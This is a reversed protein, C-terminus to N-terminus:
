QENQTPQPQHKKFWDAVIQANKPEFDARKGAFADAMSPYHQFGHGTAPLEKFEAAGPKNANVLKAITEHDDRSMIWDYQGFLVLTPVKVQSWAAALNLKQLQQYFALPRGYLHSLDKGEPWLESLKPVENTLAGIPRGRVLWEYYLTSAQKMRDTVDGASNGALAFRRREIELMHEFWTKVWGGIIAYGRVKAQQAESEPVLPAFGGGNSTGFLYIQDPDIFDYNGLTRFAARYGALESEFDTEACVGESDGCGPKDVRVTCYGPLEALARIVSAISDGGENPAEVSDCSLWGVVFIVPLKGTANRPKTIITRLKQGKAGSVNDYIVDANSYTERAEEPLAGKLVMSEGERSIDITVEQGVKLTRAFEALDDRSIALHKNVYVLNDGVRIDLQAALSGPTVESILFTKPIKGPKKPDIDLGLSGRRPLDGEAGRAALSFGLVWIGFGLSFFAFRCFGFLRTM